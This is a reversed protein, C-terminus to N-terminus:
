GIYRMQDESPEKQVVGLDEMMKREMKQAEAVRREADKAKESLKSMDVDIGLLKTLPKLVAKSSNPDLYYGSTEGMLCIGKMGRVKALGLLLGSVGIIQGMGDRRVLVKLKELESIFRKHTVAGYVKPREVLRGVGLGGLTYIMDVGYDVAIDLLKQSLAYQGEPTSSQTNGIAFIIDRKSSDGSTWYYFENKMEQIMGSKKILVQPPFTDSYLTAFKKAELETALQKAAIRSVHGIGPLGEVLVPNEVKPERMKRLVFEAM